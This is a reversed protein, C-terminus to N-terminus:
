WTPATRCPTRWCTPSTPSCAARSSSSMTIAASGIEFDIILSTGFSAEFVFMDDGTDGQLYDSGSGAFLTDNGVGGALNDDGADGALYDDGDAGLVTDNGAGGFVVDNGTEGNIDDNGSEGVVTDNGAGGFVVDEGDGGNVYDEGDGGLVTDNGANGFLTDPGAGGDLYDNGIDGLLTDTGDNGVLLDDGDGGNLYDDGADGMLTDAGGNGVILDNDAGGNLYDNGDAGILTDNGAEGFAKDNGDGSTVYDNGGGGVLVDDGALGNIIDATAGGGLTDPGTGGTLIDPSVDRITVTFAEDYFFGDVNTARVVITHSAAQEFDLLSGNLVGLFAAGLFFRGGADDVLSYGLQFGTSEMEIGTFRGVITGYPSQEDVVLPTSTIDIPRNMPQAVTVTQPPAIGDTVSVTFSGDERGGDHKFFIAPNSSLRAQSFTSIPIHPSPHASGTFYFLGGHSTGTVTYILEASTNDPDTTFLDSATIYSVTTYGPRAPLLQLDGQIAPADNVHPSVTANVTASQPSASGDTLSVTFSGDLEGGDHQFSIANAALDAQTFTATASGGKL